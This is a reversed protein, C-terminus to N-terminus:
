STWRCVNADFASVGNDPEGPCLGLRQRFKTALHDLGPQTLANQKGDRTSLLKVLDGNRQILSSKSEYKTVTFVFTPAARRAARTPTCPPEAGVLMGLLVDLFEEAEERGLPALRLQMYYTKEGWEHCYEPGPFLM